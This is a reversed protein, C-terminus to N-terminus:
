YILLDLVNINTRDFSNVRESGCTIIILKQLCHLDLHSPEYHAAEDSDVSNSM